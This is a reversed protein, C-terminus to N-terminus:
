ADCFCLCLKYCTQYHKNNGTGCTIICINSLTLFIKVTMTYIHLLLNKKILSVALYSYMVHCSCNIWEFFICIHITPSSNIKFFSTLFTGLADLQSKLYVSLSPHQLVCRFLQALQLNKNEHPWIHFEYSM